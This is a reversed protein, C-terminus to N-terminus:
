LSSVVPEIGTGAVLADPDAYCWEDPEMLPASGHVPCDGNVVYLPNGNADTYGCGKGHRNDMVPCLCGGADPHGPPATM